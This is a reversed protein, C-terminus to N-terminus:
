VYPTVVVRIHATGFGSTANEKLSIRMTKESVELKDHLKYVTSASAGTFETPLIFLEKTAVGTAKGTDKYWNTEDDSSFEYQISLTRNATAPTFDIEVTIFRYGHVTLIKQNGSYASTLTVPAAATGIVDWANQITASM